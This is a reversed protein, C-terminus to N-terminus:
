RGARNEVLTRYYAAIRAAHHEHTFHERISLCAETARELAARDSAVRGVDDISDIVFGIGHEEILEVVGRYHDTCVVPIAGHFWGSVAKTPLCVALTASENHHEAELEHFVGMLDYRSTAESLLTDWRLPIKPECHYDPLERALQRYPEHLVGPPDHFRTHVVLGQAVLRRIIDVYWRGSGPTDHATGVLALHVRADHASLKESPPGMNRRAFAHPVILSTARLDIGHARELYTRLARSVLLQGDSASLAAAELQWTVSGPEARALTTLPDRIELVVPTRDDVLERILLALEEHRYYLVHGVDPRCGELVAALRRAVEERSSEEVRDLRELRLGERAARGVAGAHVAGSWGVTLEVHAGLAHLYDIHTWKFRSVVALVRLRRGRRLRGRGRRRRGSRLRDVLGDSM